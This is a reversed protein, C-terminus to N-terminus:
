CRRGSRSFSAAGDLRTRGECGATDETVKECEDYDKLVNSWLMDVQPGPRYAAHHHSINYPIIRSLRAPVQRAVKTWDQKVKASRTSVAIPIHTGM